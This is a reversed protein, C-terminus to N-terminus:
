RSKDQGDMGGGKIGRTRKIRFLLGTNPDYRLLEKLEKQTIAM